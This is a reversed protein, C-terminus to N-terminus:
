GAPEAICAMDATDVACLEGAGDLGWDIMAAIEVSSRVASSCAASCTNASIFAGVTDEGKAVLKETGTSDASAATGSAGSPRTDLSDVCEVCERREFREVRDFRDISDSLDAAAAPAAAVM